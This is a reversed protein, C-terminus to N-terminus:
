SLDRGICQSCNSWFVVHGFHLTDIFRLYRVIWICSSCPKEISCTGSDWTEWGLWHYMTSKGISCASVWQGTASQGAWGLVHYLSHCRKQMICGSSIITMTCSPLNWHQGWQQINRFDIVGLCTTLWVQQALSSMNLFM